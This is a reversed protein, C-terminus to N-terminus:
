PPPPLALLRDPHLHVQCKPQESVTLPLEKSHGFAFAGVPTLRVAELGDFPTLFMQSDLRWKSHGDPANYAIELFGLSALLFAMVHIM